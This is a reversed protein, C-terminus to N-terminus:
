SCLMARLSESAAAVTEATLQPETCRIRWRMLRGLMQLYLEPQEEPVALFAVLSVPADPWPIEGQVAALYSVPM